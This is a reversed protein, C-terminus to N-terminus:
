GVVRESRDGMHPAGQGWLEPSSGLRACQMAHSRGRCQPSVDYSPKPMDSTTSLRVTCTTTLRKSASEGVEADDVCGGDGGDGVANVGQAGLM